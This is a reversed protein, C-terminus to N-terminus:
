KKEMLEAAEQILYPGDNPYMSLDVEEWGFGCGIKNPCESPIERDLLHDSTTSWDWTMGTPCIHRFIRM